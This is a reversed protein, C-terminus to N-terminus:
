GSRPKTSCTARRRRRRVSDYARGSRTRECRRGDSAANSSTGSRRRLARPIHVHSVEHGWRDYRELRPPNKDTQEARVAVPGGMLEGVDVLHPELWALEDATLYYRMLFQITPDSTYWNLGVAGQYRETRYRDSKEPTNYALRDVHETIYRESDTRMERDRIVM